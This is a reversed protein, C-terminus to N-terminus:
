RRVRKDIVVLRAPRPAGAVIHREWCPRCVYNARPRRYRPYEGGCGECRLAFPYEPMEVEDHSAARQPRAGIRRGAAQWMPGHGAHPTLAHAIEHLITDRMQAEDNLLTLPRSLTILRKDYHCCGLRRKARDFAFRYGQTPLHQAILEEAIRKADAPNM